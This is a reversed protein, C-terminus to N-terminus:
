GDRCARNRNTRKYEESDLVPALCTCRRRRLSFSLSGKPRNDDDNEYHCDYETAHSELAKLCDGEVVTLQIVRIGYM